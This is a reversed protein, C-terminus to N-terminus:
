YHCYKFRLVPKACKLLSQEGFGSPNAIHIDEVTIAPRFSLELQINGNIRVDRQLQESLLKTVLQRSDGIEVKVGVMLAAIPLLVILLLVTLGILSRKLWPKMKM